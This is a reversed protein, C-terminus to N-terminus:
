QEGRNKNKWDGSPIKKYSLYKTEDDGFYILGRIGKSSIVTKRQYLSNIDGDMYDELIDLEHLTDRDIKYVEVAIKAKKDETEFAMPYEGLDRLIFGNVTDTGSYESKGLYSEYLEGQRLTGYVFIIHMEDSIM